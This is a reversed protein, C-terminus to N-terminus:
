VCRQGFVASPLRVQTFYGLGRMRALHELSRWPGAATVVHVVAAGDPLFAAHALAAGDAAVLVNAAALAALQAAQPRCAFDHRRVSVGPFDRLSGLAEEENLVQRFLPSDATLGCPFKSVRTQVLALLRSRTGGALPDDTASMALASAAADTSTLPNATQLVGMGGLAFGRYGRLLRSGGRSTCYGHSGDSARLSYLREATALMISSYGPPVFLARRLRVRALGEAKLTSAYLIPHKPSFVPRIFAEEFPGRQEDLLLVQV